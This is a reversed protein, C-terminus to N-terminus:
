TLTPAINISITKNHIGLCDLDTVDYKLEEIKAPEITKDAGVNREETVEEECEHECPPEILEVEDLLSTLFYDEFISCSSDSILDTSDNDQSDFKKYTYEVDEYRVKTGEKLEGKAIM